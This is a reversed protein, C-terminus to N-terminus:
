DHLHNEFLRAASRANVIEGPQSRSNLTDLDTWIHAEIYSSVWRNNERASKIRAGFGYQRFAEKLESQSFLTTHYEREKFWDPAAQSGIMWGLHSHDEYIFTIENEEFLSLPIEIKLPVRYMGNTREFSGLTAYSPRMSSKQEFKDEYLRILIDDAECRSRFFEKGIDFRNFETGSNQEREILPGWETESLDCINRFPGYESEYYHTVYTPIENM